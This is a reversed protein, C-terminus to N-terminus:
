RRACTPTARDGRSMSSRSRRCSRARRATAASTRTASSFSEQMPHLADPEGVGEITTIDDGDHMVALSLCANVRRGGVHVTCAGCQGHDCGKKTGTLQLTERLCDLLTTRPDVAVRRERGNVRFAVPVAGAPTDAESAAAAAGPVLAGKDVVAIVGISGAGVLFSRSASRDQPDQRRGRRVDSGRGSRLPSRLPTGVGVCVPSACRAQFPGFRRQLKPGVLPRVCRVSRARRAVDTLIAGGVVTLVAFHSALGLKQPAPFCLLTHSAILSSARSVPCPQFADTSTSASVKKSGKARGACRPV